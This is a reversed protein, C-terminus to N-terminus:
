TKKSLVSTFNRAGTSARRIALTSPIPGHSLALRTSASRPMLGLASRHDGLMTERFLWGCPTQKHFHEPTVEELPAFEYIGSARATLEASILPRPLSRTDESPYITEDDALASMPSPTYHM